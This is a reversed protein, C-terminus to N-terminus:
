LPFFMFFIMEINNAIVKTNPKIEFSNSESGWAVRKPVGRNLFKWGEPSTHSLIKADSFFTWFWINQISEPDSYISYNYSFLNENKTLIVNLDEDFNDRMPQTFILLTDGDIIYNRLQALSIDYTIVSLAILLLIRDILKFM